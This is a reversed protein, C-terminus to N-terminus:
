VELKPVKRQGPEQLGSAYFSDWFPPRCGVRDDKLFRLLEVEFAPVRGRRATTTADRVELEKSFPGLAVRANGRCIGHIALVTHHVKPPFDGVIGGKHVCVQDLIRSLSIPCHLGHDVRVHLAEPIWSIGGAVVVNALLLEVQERFLVRLLEVERVEILRREGSGAIAIIVQVPIEFM